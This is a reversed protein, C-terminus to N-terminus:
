ASLRRPTTIRFRRRLRYELRRMEGDDSEHDFGMLHLLGHLTLVRLERSLISGRRSAQREATDVSIVIDGLYVDAEDDSAFSLVDTPKDFGRYERNLKRM